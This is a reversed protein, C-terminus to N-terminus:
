GSINKKIDVANIISKEKISEILSSNGDLINQEKDSLDNYPKKDSKRVEQVRTLIFSNAKNWGLCEDISDIRKLEKYPLVDPETFDFLVLDYPCAWYCGDVALLSSDPSPYAVAWCFGSGEYGDEPFYTNTKEETLNITTYGQYDEGCLLYEKNNTHNVWSHWFVGYNRKVKTIVKNNKLDLVTGKSYSWSDLKEFYEIIIKYNGSPSVHEETGDNIIYTDDFKAEFEKRREKYKNIDM